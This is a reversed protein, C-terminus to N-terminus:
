ARLAAGHARTVADIGQQRLDAVAADTLTRDPARYRLRFALSRRGSGLTDSVFEDFCHVDELLEGSATRLTAAITAAPVEGAVVFALDITAPPYPSPAIFGRDRRPAELLAGLDLEFGAAPGTVGFTACVASSIEGVSGLEAGAVMVTSARTPHLGSPSAPALEHDAIELADLLSRLADVADYVDVPRDDEVPARAVSGALVAAVHIM